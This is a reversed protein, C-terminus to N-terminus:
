QGRCAGVAVLCCADGEVGVLPATDLLWAAGRGGSAPPLVVREAVSAEALVVPVVWGPVAWEASWTVM